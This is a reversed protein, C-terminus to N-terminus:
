FSCIRPAQDSLKFVIINFFSFFLNWNLEHFNIIMSYKPLSSECLILAFDNIWIRHGISSLFDFHSLSIHQSSDPVTSEM